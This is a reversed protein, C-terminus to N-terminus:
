IKSYWNRTAHILCLSSASVTVSCTWCPPWLNSWVGLWATNEVSKLWPNTVLLKQRNAFVSMFCTWYPGCPKGQHLAEGQQSPRTDYPPFQWGGLARHRKAERPLKQSASAPEEGARQSHVQFTFSYGNWNEALSLEWCEMILGLNLSLSTCKGM